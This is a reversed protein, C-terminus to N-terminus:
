GFQHLVQEPLYRVKRTSYRLWGYYLSVQEFSCVDHHNVYSGMFVSALDLQDLHDRCEDPAHMGRLPVFMMARPHQRERYGGWADKIDMGRFHQYV